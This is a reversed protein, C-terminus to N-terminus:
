KVEFNTSYITGDPNRPRSATHIEYSCGNITIAGDSINKLSPALDGKIIVKGLLTVQKGEDTIIRKSKESFICKGSRSFQAIPEGDESLGEQNLIVSYDTVLLFDPFPLRKVYQVM